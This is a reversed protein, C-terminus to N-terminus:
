RYKWLTYLIKTGAGVVGRVTGAVKSQGAYRVRNNVDVEVTRLGAKAAKVQMEITWGYNPDEMHLRELADWRIARFPGLDTARVGYLVRFVATSLQNGFKQPVTLADKDSLRVRSGIVMEASDDTLPKLLCELDAPDNAGDGDIFVVVDPPGIERRRLYDLGALCASGYGRVPAAVVTAGAAEARAKTADRSGNDAVVVEQIIPGEGTTQALFGSVVHGISGEEDLAPIVAAVLM